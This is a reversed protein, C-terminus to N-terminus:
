KAENSKINIDNSSFLINGIKDAADKDASKLAHSYINLTTSTNSHGLRKSVERINIGENILITASTHRLQHFTIIKLNNQKLFKAFWKSPTSPYIPEGNWQTFIFDKDNWKTGKNVKDTNQKIKYEALLDMVPKAISIKRISTDNKPSKTFTGKGPIYQNSQIINITNDSFNISDWKLGVLEGLRLGSALTLIIAVKYKFDRESVNELADTLKRIDEEEYFKAETRKVKPPDVMDTPNSSIVQWKVAYELIDHILRHYHKITNASLSGPKKDDRIGNEQLNNYFEIFHIPRLKDIKIHGLAPIIRGYLLKNYEFVTKPTLNKDAHENLWKEIFDKFTLKSPEVFTNNEIQAIFKALEKEAIRKREAETKGEIKITKTHKKRKGGPGNGDSVILRYSNEGRKEISGPM